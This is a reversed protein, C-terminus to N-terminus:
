GMSPKEMRCYVSRVLLGGHQQQGGPGQGASGGLWQGVLGGGRLGALGSGAWQGVPGFPQQRGAPMGACCSGGAVPPSWCWWVGAGFRGLLLLCVPSSALPTVGSSSLSFVTGSGPFEKKKKRKEKVTKNVTHNDV